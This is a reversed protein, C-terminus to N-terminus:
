RKQIMFIEFLSVIATLYMVALFAIPIGAMTGLSLALIYLFSYGSLVILSASLAALNNLFVVLHLMLAMLIAFLPIAFMFTEGTAIFLVIAFIFLLLSIGFLMEFPYNTNNKRKVLYVVIFVLFSPIVSYLGIVAALAASALAIILILCSKGMMGKVTIKGLSLYIGFIFSFLLVLLSNLFYWLGKGCSFSGLLPISFFIMDEESDFYHPDSYEKGVLFSRLLPELQIGYNLLSEESVNNYNDKSSHYIDLNDIVAINLGNCKQSFQQFDTYSPLRDYVFSSLSYSLPLPSNDFYFDMVKSNGKTSEFIMAPGKAGRAEINVLLGVDDVLSPNMKMLTSSGAMAVEEGDTFIVKIGQNWEGRYSLAGRLLELIVALGYGDDAAGKSIQLANDRVYRYRSDYHATLLVWSSPETEAEPRFECYINSVNLLKGFKCEVSDYDYVIPEGGLQVLRGVLFSRVADRESDDFVSHPKDAIISIDNLARRANFKEVSLSRNHYYVWKFALASLAIVLLFVVIKLFKKM